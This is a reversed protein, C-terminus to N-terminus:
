KPQLGECIVRGAWIATADELLAIAPDPIRLEESLSRRINFVAFTSGIAGFTGAIAGILMSKDKARCVTAGCLAGTVIRSALGASDTRKPMFPLKDFIIEGSALGALIKFARPHGFFGFRQRDVQLCGQQAMYSVLAPATMARMGAIIGLASAAAYVVADTSTQTHTEMYDEKNYIPEAAFYTL